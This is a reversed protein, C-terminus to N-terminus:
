PIPPRIWGGVIIREGINSFMSGDNSVRLYTQESSPNNINMQFYNGLHGTKFDATTGSWKNIYANRGNGSSDATCTNADPESENFRWLGDKGWSTPFQGTFADQTNMTNKLAM